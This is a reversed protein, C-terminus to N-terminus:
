PVHTEHGHLNGQADRWTLDSPHGPVVTSFGNGSIPVPLKRGDVSLAADQAGDPVIGYIRTGEPVVETSGAAGGSLLREHANCAWDYGFDDVTIQCVDGNSAQAVYLRFHHSDSAVLRATTPDIPDDSAKSLNAAVNAPLQDQAAQDRRFAAFSAKLDSNAPAASASSSPHDGGVTLLAIAVAVLALLVVPVVRSLRHLNGNM